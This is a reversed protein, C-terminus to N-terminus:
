NEVWVSLALNTTFAFLRTPAALAPGTRAAGGAASERNARGILARCSAAEARQNTLQSARGSGCSVIPQHRCPLGHWPSSAQPPTYQYFSLRSNKLRHARSTPYLVCLCLAFSPTCNSAPLLRCLFGFAGIPRKQKPRVKNTQESVPAAVRSAAPVALCCACCLWSAPLEITAAPEAPFLCNAFPEASM